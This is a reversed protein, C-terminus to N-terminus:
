RPDKQELRRKLDAMRQILEAARRDQRAEYMTLAAVGGSMAVIAGFLLALPNAVVWAWM